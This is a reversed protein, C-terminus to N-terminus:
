ARSVVVPAMTLWLAVGVTMPWVTLWPHDWRCGHAGCVAVPGILVM